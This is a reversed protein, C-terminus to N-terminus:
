IMIYGHLTIEKKKPEPKSTNEKEKFFPLEPQQHTFETKHGYEAKFDDLVTIKAKRCGRNCNCCFFNCKGVGCCPTSSSLDNCVKAQCEDKNWYHVQSGGAIDVCSTSDSNKLFYTMSTSRCCAGNAQWIYLSFTHLILFQWTYWM